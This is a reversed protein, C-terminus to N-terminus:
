KFLDDSNKYNKTHYDVSDKVITNFEQIIFESHINYFSILEFYLIGIQIETKYPRYPFKISIYECCKYTDGSRIHDKEINRIYEHDKMNRFYSISYRQSKLQENEEFDWHKIYWKHPLLTKVITYM